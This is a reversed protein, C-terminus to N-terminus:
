IKKLGFLFFFLTLIEFFFFEKGIFASKRKWFLFLDSWGLKVAIKYLTSIDFNTQYHWVLKDTFFINRFTAFTSVIYHAPWTFSFQDSDFNFIEFLSNEIIFTSELIETPIDRQLSGLNSFLNFKAFFEGLCCSTCLKISFLLNM